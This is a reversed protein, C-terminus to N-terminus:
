NHSIRVPQSSEDELNGSPNRLYEWPIGQHIQKNEIAQLAARRAAKNRQVPKKNPIRKRMPYVLKRDFLLIRLQALRFVESKQLM